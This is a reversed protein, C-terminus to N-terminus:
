GGKARLRPLTAAYRLGGWFLPIRLFTLHLVYLGRLFPDPVRGRLSVYKWLLRTAVLVAVAAVGASGLLLAALFIMLAVMPVGALNRVWERLWMRDSTRAFRHGIEGYAYGRRVARRWYDRFGNMALDHRAMEGEVCVIRWGTQRLRWCLDAEEGAALNEDSGGVERLADLRFLANGGSMRWDGPPVYWDLGCVENFLSGSPNGEVLQGFVCAIRPDADIARRGRDLWGPDIRTDSDVFQVLSTTVARWGANRGKAATPRDTRLRIVEAGGQRAIEVSDDRSGGDVYLVRTPGAETGLATRVARLCEGLTASSNLGIVVITLGPSQESSRTDGM